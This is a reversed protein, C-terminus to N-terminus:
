RMRFVPAATMQFSHRSSLGPDRYAAYIWGHCVLWHVRDGGDDGLWGFTALRTIM